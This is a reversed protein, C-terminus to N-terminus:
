SRGELVVFVRFIHRPIWCATGVSFPILYIL